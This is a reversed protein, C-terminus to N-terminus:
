EADERPAYEKLSFLVVAVVLAQVIVLFLVMRSTAPTITTPNLMQLLQSLDTSSAPPQPHPALVRLHAMISFESFTGPLMPVWSEWGFAFLLGYMLSRDVAAGLLLSLSGYALAGVVLVWLDQTLQSEGIRGLGYSAWALLLSALWVTAVIGLLSGVFRALLIRARAVPRTLLYVITRQEIEQSVAGTGFLVSLIVLIFGFVLVAALTNYAAEPDFADGGTRRWLLALAAPLLILLAAVVLRKPRLLDRLTARILTLEVM